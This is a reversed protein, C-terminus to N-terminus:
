GSIPLRKETLTAWYDAGIGLIDDNFDFGPNHWPLGHSGDTGNGILVYCGPRHALMRAFDESGTSPECDDDVAEDGVVDVAARVAWDTEDPTNVVAVFEHSYDFSHGIGNAASVGAVIDGMRAEIMEQVGDNYGRTDGKITVRSPIVNRSGDTTLETVSIVGSELPSLSRSVVTQLASVIQAAAIMPDNGMHPASSHGGRGDLEIVFNDEFTMMPGSRLSFHGAPISPACHMGYVEDIQWREFLGDDIMAQAGHGEEENPQFIFHVSGDFAGTDALTAAAGLLMATHGDHGCGHHQGHIQSRYPVDSTSQIPLADMDARLGIGRAASGRRLRGIVGTVGVGETVEVGVSDLVSAVRAATEEVAFRIGPSSHIEHRWSKMTEHIGESRGAGM